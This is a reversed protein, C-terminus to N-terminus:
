PNTLTFNVKEVYILNISSDLLNATKYVDAKEVEITFADFIIEHSTNHNGWYLDISYFGNKYIPFSPIETKFILRKGNEVKFNHGTHRNNIGILAEGESNKLVFGYLLNEYPEKNEIELDFRFNCGGYFTDSLQNNCYTSVKLMCAYQDQKKQPHNNM